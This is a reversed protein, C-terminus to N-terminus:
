RPGDLASKGVHGGGRVAASLLARQWSPGFVALAAGGVAGVATRWYPVGLHWDPALLPVAFGALVVALLILLAYTRFRGSIEQRRPRVPQGLLASGGRTNLLVVYGVTLAGLAASSWGDAAAGLFDPAALFAFLVVGFLVYVWRSHTASSHTRDRHRSIDALARAAEDASPRPDEPGSPSSTSAM